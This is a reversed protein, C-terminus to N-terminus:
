EGTQEFPTIVFDEVGSAISIGAIGDVAAPEALIADKNVEKKIRVFRGFGLRELTEIVVDQARIRVSPPRQRWQIEGTILNCTKVKGGHTLDARHAECWTQIGAQLAEIEATLAELAPQHAKTIEGLADNMDAVERTFMRQVDGLAKIDAAIQDRTQGVNVLAPAKIRNSAKAM